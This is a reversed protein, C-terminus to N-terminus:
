PPWLLCPKKSMGKDTVKLVAEPSGGIWQNRSVRDRTMHKGDALLKVFATNNSLGELLEAVTGNIFFRIPSSARISVM